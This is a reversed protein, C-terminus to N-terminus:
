LQLSGLLVDVGEGGLQRVEPVLHGLLPFVLLPYTLRGKRVWGIKKNLYKKHPTPTPTPTKLSFTLFWCDPFKSKREKQLSHRSLSHKKKKYSRFNNIPIKKKFDKRFTVMM